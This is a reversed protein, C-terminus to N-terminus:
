SYAMEGFPVLRRALNELAERVASCDSDEIDGAGLARLLQSMKKSLAGRTDAKTGLVSGRAAIPSLLYDLSAGRAALYEVVALKPMHALSESLNLPTALLISVGAFWNAAEEIKQLGEAGLAGAEREYIALLVADCLSGLPFATLCAPGPSRPM